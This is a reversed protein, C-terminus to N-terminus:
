SSGTGDHDGEDEGPDKMEEHGSAATPGDSRDMSDAQTEQIHICPAPRMAHAEENRIAPILLQWWGKTWEEDEAQVECESRQCCGLKFEMRSCSACRRRM